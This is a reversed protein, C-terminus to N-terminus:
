SYEERRIASAVILRGSRAAPRGLPDQQVLGRVSEPLGNSSWDDEVVDDADMFSEERPGEAEGEEEADDVPFNM